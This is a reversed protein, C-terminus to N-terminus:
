TIVTLAVMGASRLCSLSSGGARTGETEDAPLSRPRRARRVTLTAGAGGRIPNSPAARTACSRRVTVFFPFFVM